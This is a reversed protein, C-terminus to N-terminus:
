MIRAVKPSGPKSEFEEVLEAPIKVGAYQREFEHLLYNHFQEQIDVDSAYTGAFARRAYASPRFLFFWPAYIGANLGNLKFDWVVQINVLGKPVLFRPVVLVVYGVEVYGKSILTRLKEIEKAKIWEKSIPVKPFKKRHAPLAFHFLKAGDRAERM